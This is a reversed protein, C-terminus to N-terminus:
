PKLRMKAHPLASNAIGARNQLEWSNNIKDYLEAAENEWENYEMETYCGRPFAM